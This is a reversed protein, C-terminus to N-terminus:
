EFLKCPIGKFVSSLVELSRNLNELNFVELSVTGSYRELIRVTRAFLERPLRDLGIHDKPRPGSFDVGHLHIVALRAPYTEFTRELDHGYKFHHGADMCLRIPYKELFPDLLVPSYDLTEVSVAEPRDLRPIFLDMGDMARDEWDPGGGEPRELHLTHTTPSLPELREMLRLLTQAARERDPRAPATLSVDVPLHINYTLDLDRGLLALETVEARSPLVEEPLSEFVLIEIEDFVPGLKKVNPLIYDPFIFSTTGLRFPKGPKEGKSGAKPKQSEAKM